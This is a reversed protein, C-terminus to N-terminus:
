DPHFRRKQLNRRCIAEFECYNPCRERPRVRFDGARVSAVTEAIRTRAVEIAQKLEDGTLESGRKGSRVYFFTARDVEQDRGVPLSQKVALVYVPLQVDRGELTARKSRPTAGSKYDIVALAGDSRQDIRDIRGRILVPGHPTEVRVPPHGRQGGFIQEVGAPLFAEWPMGTALMGRLAAQLRRRVDAREWHWFPSPAFGFRSPAEALVEEIATDLHARALDSQDPVLRVQAQRWREGARSLIAHYIQGRLSGDIADEPDHLPQVRLLHAAAFRFPCTLYDNIQTISWQHEPGFHAAVLAALAPDRALEEQLAGEFASYPGHGERLAEIRRARVIQDWVPYDARTREILQRLHDPDDTPARDKECPQALRQALALAREVPSAAAEWGPVSGARVHERAVGSILDLLAILYPSAPLPVGAEDLRTRSLTLTARARCVAEYFITREDAPDPAALPLGAEAALRQRERRSYIPPEALPRPFEGENLGLLFVHAYTQGRAALVQRATVGEQPVHYRTSAAARELDDWFREAPVAPTGLLAAARAQDILIREFCEWAAQDRTAYPDQDPDRPETDAQELQCLAYMRNHVWAVYDSVLAAEPPMLWTALEDLATRLRAATDGVAPLPAIEDDDPPESAALRDLVTRWHQLGGAIGARRAVQDLLDVQQAIELPLRSTYPSRLVEVLMRRPYDSRPLRLLSLFTAIPPAEALPLGEDVALAVGYEAAIDALLRTYLTGDRYLLAIDGPAVGRALLQQVRRLVARVERERDAAEILEVVNHAPVPAQENLEFLRAEIQQLVPPGNFRLQAAIPRVVFREELAARTREFRRYAPRPHPGGTLTLLTRPLRRALEVLLDLQVPTFQDFGDIILLEFRRRLTAGERLARSARQLLHPQDAVQATEQFAVYRRYLEALEHDHPSGASAAFAEPSIGAEGLDLCLDAVSAVFGPKEAVLTYTPLGGAARMEFLLQRVLTLRLADGLLTTNGLVMRALHYFEVVLIRRQALRQRLHLRATRDPVLVLTAAGRSRSIQQVVTSTKGCAAPGLLLDLAPKDTAESMHQDYGVRHTDTLRYCRWVARVQGAHQLRM